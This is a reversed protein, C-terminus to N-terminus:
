STSKNIIIHTFAEEEGEINMCNFRFYIEAIADYHSIGGHDDTSLRYKQQYLTGLQPYRRSYHTVELPTEIINLYEILEKFYSFLQQMKPLISVQYNHELKEKHLTDEHLEAQKQSAEERLDDLIGM